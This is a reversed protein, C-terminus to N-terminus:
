KIVTKGTSGFGGAGRDTGTLEEAPEFVAQPAPLIAMQAIRDGPSIVFAADSINYLGVKIEGRYDSDIVGVCNALTIGSKVALGSRAFIFAGYGAPLEVTLGTPVLLRGGAPITQPEALDAYLDAAAAGPTAYEPMKATPTLKKCKIEM